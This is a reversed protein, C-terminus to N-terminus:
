WWRISARWRDIAEKEDATIGDSIDKKLSWQAYLYNCMVVHEFQAAETLLYLLEDRDNVAINIEASM